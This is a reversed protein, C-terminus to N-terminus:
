RSGLTRKRKRGTKQCSGKSRRRVPGMELTLDGKKNRMFEERPEIIDDVQMDERDFMLHYRVGAM